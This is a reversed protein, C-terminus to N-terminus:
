AWSPVGMGPRDLNQFWGVTMEIVRRSATRQESQGPVKSVCGDSMQSERRSQKIFEGGVRLGRQRSVCRSRNEDEIAEKLMMTQRELGERCRRDQGSPPPTTGVTSGMAAFSPSLFISRVLIKIQKATGHGRTAPRSYHPRSKEDSRFLM